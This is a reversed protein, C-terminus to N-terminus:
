SASLLHFQAPMGHFVEMCLRSSGLSFDVPGRQEGTGGGGTKLRSWLFGVAVWLLSSLPVSTSARRLPGFNFGLPGCSVAHIPFLFLLEKCRDPWHSTIFAFTRKEPQYVPWLPASLHLHNEGWIGRGSRARQGCTLEPPSLGSLSILEGIELNTQLFVSSGIGFRRPLGSDKVALFWCLSSAESISLGVRGARVLLQVQPNVGPIVSGM